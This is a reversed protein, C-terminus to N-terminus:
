VMRIELLQGASYATGSGYIAAYGDCVYKPNDNEYIGGAGFKMLIGVAYRDPQLLIVDTAKLSKKTTVDRSLVTGSTTIEQHDSYQGDTKPFETVIGTTQDVVYPTIIFGAASDGCKLTGNYTLYIHYTLSLNVYFTYSGSVPEFDTTNYYVWYYTTVLSDAYPSGSCSKGRNTSSGATLNGTHLDLDFKRSTTSVCSEIIKKEIDVLSGKFPPKDTFEKVLAAATLTTSSVVGGAGESRSVAALVLALVLGIALALRVAPFHRRASKAVPPIGRGRSM